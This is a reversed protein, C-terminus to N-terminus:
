AGQDHVRRDVGLWAHGLREPVLRALIAAALLGLLALMWRDLPQATIQDPHFWIELVAALSGISLMLPRWLVPTRRVGGRAITGLLGVGLVFYSAAYVGAMAPGVRMPFMLIAVFVACTALLWLLQGKM